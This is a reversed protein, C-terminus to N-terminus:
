RTLRERAAPPAPTGASPPDRSDEPALRCAPCVQAAAVRRWGCNPCAAFARSIGRPGLLWGMLLWFALLALMLALECVVISDLVGRVEQAM